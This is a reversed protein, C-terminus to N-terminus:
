PKQSQKDHRYGLRDPHPRLYVVLSVLKVLSCNYKCDLAGFCTFNSPLATNLNKKFFDKFSESNRAPFGGGPTLSECM